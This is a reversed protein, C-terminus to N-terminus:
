VHEAWHVTIWENNKKWCWRIHHHTEWQKSLSLVVVFYVNKERAAIEKKNWCIRLLSYDAQRNQIYLYRIIFFNHNSFKSLNTGDNPTDYAIWQFTAYQMIPFCASDVLVWCSLGYTLADWHICINHMRFIVASLHQFSSYVYSRQELLLQIFKASKHSDFIKVHFWIIWKMTCSAGHERLRICWNNKKKEPSSAVFSKKKIWILCMNFVCKCWCIYLCFFFLFERILFWIQLLRQNM